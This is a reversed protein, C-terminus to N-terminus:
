VHFRLNSMTDTVNAGYCAGVFVAARQQVDSIIANMNGLHSLSYGQQLKQLVKAKGIGHLSSVTDCGSLAHAALLYQNINKYRAATQGIDIVTRKASTSEMTIKMKIGLPSYHHLLMVFVDTDDCIVAIHGKTM